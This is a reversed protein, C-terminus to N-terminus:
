CEQRGKKRGASKDGKDFSITLIAVLMPQRFLDTALLARVCMFAQDANLWWFDSSHDESIGVEILLVAPDTKPNSESVNERRQVLIDLASM